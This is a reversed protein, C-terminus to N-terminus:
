NVRPSGDPAVAIAAIPFHNQPGEKYVFALALSHHEYWTNAASDAAQRDQPGVKSRPSSTLKLFQEGASRGAPRRHPFSPIREKPDPSAGAMAHSSESFQPPSGAERTQPQRWCIRAEEPTTQKLEPHNVM